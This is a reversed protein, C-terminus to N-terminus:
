VSVRDTVHQPFRSIRRKGPRARVETKARVCRALWDVSPMRVGGRLAGRAQLVRKTAAAIDGWTVLYQNDAEKILRIRERNATEVLRPPLRTKRGRTEHRGRAYTKGSLFTYVASESPGAQGCRARSERLLKLIDQPAYGQKQLRDMREVEASSMHPAM